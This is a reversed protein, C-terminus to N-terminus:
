LSARPTIQGVAICRDVGSGGQLVCGAYFDYNTDSLRAGHINIADYSSTGAAILPVALSTIPNTLVQAGNIDMGTFGQFSIEGSSKVIVNQNWSSEDNLWSYQGQGPVHQYFQTVANTPALQNDIFDNWVGPQGQLINGQLLDPPTHGTPIGASTYYTSIPNYNYVSLCANPFDFGIGQCWVNHGTAYGPTLAQVLEQTGEISAWDFSPAMAADGPNLTLGNPQLVTNLYTWVPANTTGTNSVNDKAVRAAPFVHVISTSGMNAFVVGNWTTTGGVTANWSPASGGTTGGTV